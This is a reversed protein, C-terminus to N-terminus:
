VRLGGATLRPVCADRCIRYVQRPGLERTVMLELALAIIASRAPKDEVFYRVREAVYRTYADAADSHPWLLLRAIDIAMRRDDDRFATDWALERDFSQQALAGAVLVALSRRLDYARASWSRTRVPRAVPPPTEGAAPIYPLRVICRGASASDAVVSVRGLGARLIYAVVAHGAEHISPHYLAPDAQRPARARRDSM